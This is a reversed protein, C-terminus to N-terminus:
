IKQMTRLHAWGSLERTWVHHCGQTEKRSNNHCSINIFHGKRILQFSEMIWQIKGISVWLFLFAVDYSLSLACALVRSESRIVSGTLLRIVSLDTEEREWIGGKEWQSQVEPSPLLWSIRGDWDQVWDCSHSDRLRQLETEAGPPRPPGLAVCKGALLHITGHSWLHQCCYGYPAKSAEMFGRLLCISWEAPSPFSHPLPFM